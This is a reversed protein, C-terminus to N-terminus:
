TRVFTEIKVVKEVTIIIELKSAPLITFSKKVMPDYLHKVWKYRTDGFM